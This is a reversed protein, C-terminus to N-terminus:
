PLFPAWSVQLNHGRGAKDAALERAVDKNNDQGKISLHGGVVQIKQVDVIKRSTLRRKVGFEVLAILEGATTLVVTAGDSCVVTEVTVNNNLSAVLRPTTVFPGATQVHGLQGGNMGWTYVDNATWFVSHYRAAAVGVPVAIDQKMKIPSPTALSQGLAVSAHGLQGSTNLGCTWVTGGAVLFVSHDVGLAVQSVKGSLGVM